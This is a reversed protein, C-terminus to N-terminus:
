NKPGALFWIILGALPLVLVLLCWLIKAGDPAKSKIITVIAWIDVAFILLGILGTFM